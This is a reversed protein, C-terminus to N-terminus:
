NAVELHFVFIPEVFPETLAVVVFRMNLIKLPKRRM